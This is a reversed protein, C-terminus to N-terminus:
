SLIIQYNMDTIDHKMYDHKSQAINKISQMMMATNIKVVLSDGMTPFNMFGHVEKLSSSRMCVSIILSMRNCCNELFIEQKHHGFISNKPKGKQCYVDLPLLILVCHYQRRVHSRHWNVCFILLQGLPIDDAVKVCSSPILPKFVSVEDSKSTITEIPPSRPSLDSFTIM